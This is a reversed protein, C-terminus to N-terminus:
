LLFQMSRIWVENAEVKEDMPLDVKAHETVHSYEPAVDAKM